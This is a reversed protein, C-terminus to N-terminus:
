IHILALYMYDGYQVAKGGNSYVVYDYDQKFDDRIKIKSFSAGCGALMFVSILLATVVVSIRKKM